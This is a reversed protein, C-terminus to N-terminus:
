AMFTPAPQVAARMFDDEFRQAQSCMKKVVSWNAVWESARDRYKEFDKKGGSLLRESKPRAALINEPAPLCELDGRKLHQEGPYLGAVLWAELNQSPFCLVLNDPCTGGGLWRLVVVRLAQLTADIPPCPQDCPLDATSDDIHGARYNTKAVDGDLQLILVDQNLFLLNDEIGKPGNLV